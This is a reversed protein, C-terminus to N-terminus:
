RRPRNRLLSSIRDKDADTALAGNALLFEIAAIQENAIASRLPTYGRYGVANIDDGRAIGMKMIELRNFTAGVGTLSDNHRLQVGADLLTRVTKVRGQAASNYLLIEARKGPGLVAVTLSRLTDHPLSIFAVLGLILVTSSLGYFAKTRSTTNRSFIAPINAGLVGGALLPIVLLVLILPSHVLYVPQDIWWGYTQRYIDRGALWGLLFLAAINLWFLARM